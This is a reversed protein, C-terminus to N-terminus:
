KDTKNKAITVMKVPTDSSEMYMEETEQQTSKLQEISNTIQNFLTSYMKQYDPM